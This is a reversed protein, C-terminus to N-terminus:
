WCFYAARSSRMRGTAGAGRVASFNVRRRGVCPRGPGGGCPHDALGYGVACCGALSGGVAVAWRHPAAAACAVFWGCDVHGGHRAWLRGRASGRVGDARSGGGGAVCDVGVSQACAWRRGRARRAGLALERWGIRDDRFRYAADIRAPAALSAPASLRCDLRSTKLGGAGAPYTLSAGSITWRLAQGNVTLILAAAAEQCSAPADQLTPLEALDAVALADIRDPHVTLMASRNVSFSKV